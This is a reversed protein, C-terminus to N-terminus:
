PLLPPNSCQLTVNGDEDIIFGYAYENTPCTYTGPKATGQDGKDGKDGKISEGPDGKDGKEGKDGKDGKISQGDQGDAAKPADKGKEGRPGPKGPDGREGKDGKPGTKGVLAKGDGDSDGDQIKQANDCTSEELSARGDECQIVVQNALSDRANVAQDKQDQAYLYLFLMGILSAVLAICVATLAINKRRVVHTESM